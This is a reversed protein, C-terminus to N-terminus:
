IYMWDRTVEKPTSSSVSMVAEERAEGRGGFRRELM